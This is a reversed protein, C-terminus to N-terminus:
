VPINEGDTYAPADADTPDPKGAARHLFEVSNARVTIKQRKEKRENEWQELQLAGEIIVPSGKGMYKALSEAQKGWVTCDVFLTKEIVEGARNQFRKNVALGVDCVSVGSTTTKLEPDRTLHGKLIVLNM